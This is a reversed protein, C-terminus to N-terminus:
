RPVEYDGGGCEWPFLTVVHPPCRSGCLIVGSGAQRRLLGAIYRDQRAKELQDLKEEWDPKPM